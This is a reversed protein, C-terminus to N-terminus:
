CESNNVSVVEAPLIEEANSAAKGKLYAHDSLLARLNSLPDEAWSDPTVFRLPLAESMVQTRSGM